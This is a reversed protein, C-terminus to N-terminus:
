DQRESYIPNDIVAMDVDKGMELIFKLTEEAKGPEMYLAVMEKPEYKLYLTGAIIRMSTIADRAIAREYGDEGKLVIFQKKM